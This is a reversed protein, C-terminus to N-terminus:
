QEARPVSGVADFAGKAVARGVRDSPYQQIRQQLRNLIRWSDEGLHDRVARGTRLMGALTAPVSGTARPDILVLLQRRLAFFRSRNAIVLSEEPAGLAKLLADLCNDANDYEQLELLQRLAERLLRLTGDLREGYRGLWYLNDAVRSPLDSGDRTVVIPRLSAATLQYTEPSCGGLGLCGQQHRGEACLGASRGLRPSRALAGPMVRYGDEVAVAFGRLMIPRPVIQGNELCPATSLNLSTQGVFLHPAARIQTILSEKAAKDLLAGSQPERGPLISRIILEDLHALVYGCDEARGCWWTVISPLRLDEGLLHRCLSLLFAMPWREGAEGSGGLANAIARRRLSGSAALGADRAAFRRAWHIAINMLWEACSSMWLCCAAWHKLWVRGDRVALDEGEVLSSLYNALYAHEFYNENM